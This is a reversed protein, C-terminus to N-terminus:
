MTGGVNSDIHLSANLDKTIKPRSKQLHSPPAKPLQFVQRISQQKSPSHSSVLVSLETKLQQLEADKRALFAKLSDEM